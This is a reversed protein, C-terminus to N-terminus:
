VLLAPLAGEIRLLQEKRELGGAYGTLSGDSGIVRHCPTLIGIPNQGNAAAVARVAKPNGIKAALQAYTWTKGFPITRLTAWVRRQFDTGGEYLELARFGADSGGIWQDLATKIEAPAPSEPLADYDVGFRKSFLAMLRNEHDAFDLTAIKGGHTTIVINGVVNLSLRHRKFM